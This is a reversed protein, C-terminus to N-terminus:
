RGRRGIGGAGGGHDAGPCQLNGDASDQIGDGDVAGVVRKLADGGRDITRRSVGAKGGANEGGAVASSQHQAAGLGTLRIADQNRLRAAVASKRRQDVVRRVVVRRERLRLRRQVRIKGDVVIGGRASGVYVGVVRVMPLSVAPACVEIPVKTLASLPRSLLM